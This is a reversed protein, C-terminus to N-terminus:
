DSTMAHVRMNTKIIQCESQSTGWLHALYLKWFSSIKTKQITMKKSIQWWELCVGDEQADRKRHYALRCMGTGIKLFESVGISELVATIERQYSSSHIWNWSNAIGM